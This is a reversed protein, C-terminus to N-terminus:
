PRASTCSATSARAGSPSARSDPRSTSRGIFTVTAREGKFPGSLIRASVVLDTDSALEDRPIGTDHFFGTTPGAANTIIGRAM